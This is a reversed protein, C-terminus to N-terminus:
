RFFLLFVEFNDFRNRPFLRDRILRIVCIVRILLEGGLTGELLRILPAPYLQALLEDPNASVEPPPAPHNAKVM